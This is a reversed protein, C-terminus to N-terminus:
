EFNNHLRRQGVGVRQARRDLASAVDDQEFFKRRKACSVCVRLRKEDYGRMSVHLLKDEPYTNACCRCYSVESEGIVDLAVLQSHPRHIKPERIDLLNYRAEKLETYWLGTIDSWMDIYAGYKERVIDRIHCGGM